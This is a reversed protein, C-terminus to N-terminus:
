IIVKDYFYIGWCVICALIFLVDLFRIKIKCINTRKIPNDICRTLSAAVLEDGVIVTSVIFPIIRYEFMKIPGNKWSIARMNMADKIASYEEKMTPFMRLIVSFSVIITKPIKLKEMTSIFDSVKTTVFLYYAIMFGPIMHTFIGIMSGLIFSITGTMINRLNLDIFFLIAYVLFLKISLKIKGYAFFLFIPVFSLFVRVYVMNGSTGGSILITSISLVLLIKTRPDLKLKENKKGNFYTM